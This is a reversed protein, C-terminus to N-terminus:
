SSNKFSRTNVKEEHAKDWKLVLDGIEFSKSSTSKTDFSAKAIQQHHAHIAKEKERQEEM